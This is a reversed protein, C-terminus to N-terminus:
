WLTSAEYRLFTSKRTTTKHQTEAANLTEIKQWKPPIRISGGDESHSLQNLHISFHYSLRETATILGVGAFTM